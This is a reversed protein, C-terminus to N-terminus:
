GQYDHGGRPGRRRHLLRLRHFDDPVASETRLARGRARRGRRHLRRHRSVSQGCRHRKEKYVDYEKRASCCARRTGDGHCRRHAQSEGQESGLAADQIALYSSVLGFQAFGIWAGPKRAGWGNKPISLRQSRRRNEVSLRVGCSHALSGVGSVGAVINKWFTEIGIGVPSVVGIGTIVVRRKQMFQMREWGERPCFRVGAPLLWRQGGGSLTGWQWCVICFGCSKYLSLKCGYLNTCRFSPPGRPAQAMAAKCTPSRRLRLSKPIVERWSAYVGLVAFM